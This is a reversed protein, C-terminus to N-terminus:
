SPASIPRMVPPSSTVIKATASVWNWSLVNQAGRVKGYTSYYVLICNLSHWAGFPETQEQRSLGAVRKSRAPLWSASRRSRRAACIGNVLDRKGSRSKCRSLAVFLRSPFFFPLVSCRLRVFAAQRANRTVNRVESNRGKAVKEEVEDEEQPRGNREREREREKKIEKWRRRGARRHIGPERRERAMRWLATPYFEDVPALGLARPTWTVASVILFPHQSIESYFLCPLFIYKGAV